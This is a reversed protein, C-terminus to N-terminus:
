KSKDLYAKDLEGIERIQAQAIALVQDPNTFMPLIGKAQNNCFSQMTRKSRTTSEFYYGLNGIYRTANPNYPCYETFIPRNNIM